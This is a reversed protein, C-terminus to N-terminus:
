QVHNTHFHKRSTRVRQSQEVASVPAPAQALQSALSADGRACLEFVHVLLNSVQTWHFVTTLLLRQCAICGMCHVEAPSGDECEVHLEEVLFDDLHDELEDAYHDGAPLCGLATFRLDRHRSCM